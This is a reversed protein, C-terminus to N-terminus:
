EMFKRDAVSSPIVRKNLERRRLWPGWCLLGLHAAIAHGLLTVVSGMTTPDDTLYILAIFTEVALLAWLRQRGPVLFVLAGATTFFGYSVGIDLWHGDSKPLAGARIAWLIPLETALTAVVHGSFFVGAARLSGIRRELPAVALAFIVVYPLWPEGNLWLASTLLARLPRRWLNHADTSSLALLRASLVPNALKLVLTTEFLVVLYCFTFPTRKPTPLMATIRTLWSKRPSRTRIPRGAQREVEQLMEEAQGTM